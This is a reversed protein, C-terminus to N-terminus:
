GIVRQGLKFQMVKSGLQVVTGAVDLGYICPYKLHNSGDQLKSFCYAWQYFFICPSSLRVKWDAPNVAVYAVKIVVENETPNPTPGPGVELVRSNPSPAWVAQNQFAM